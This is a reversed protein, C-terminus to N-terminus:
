SPYPSTELKAAIKVLTRLWDIFTMPYNNLSDNTKLSQKALPILKKQSSPRKSTPNEYHDTYNYLYHKENKVFHLQEQRSRAIANVFNQPFLPFIFRYSIIIIFSLAM